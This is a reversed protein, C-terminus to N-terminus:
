GSYLFTRPPDRVAAANRCAAAVRGGIVARRAGADSVLDGMAEVLQSVDVVVLAAQTTPPGGLIQGAVASRCRPQRRLEVAIARKGFQADITLLDQGFADGIERAQLNRVVGVHDRQFSLDVRHDASEGAFLAEEQGEGLPPPPRLGFRRQPPLERRVVM